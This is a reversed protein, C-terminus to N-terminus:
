KKMNGAQLKIKQLRGEGSGAGATMHPIRGGAKRGMMPPAPPMGPGASGASPIGPLGPPIPPPAMPPPPTPGVMSPPIGMDPQKQGANINIHINTKGKTSGGHKKAIRGGTVGPVKGPYGPGSFVSGGERRGIRAEPKVMARILRKDATEDLHRERAKERQATGGNKLRPMGLGRMPSLAGAGARKFDMLQAPVGAQQVSEDMMRQAGPMPGGLARKFRPMKGMHTSCSEGSVKGGSKYAQRGIPRAGTQKEANLAEPPTWTSSDVKQHPDASTMREAKDKMAKRADKALESM